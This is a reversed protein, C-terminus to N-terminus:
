YQEIIIISLTFAKLAEILSNLEDKISLLVAKTVVLPDLKARRLITAISSEFYDVLNSLEEARKKNITSFEIITKNAEWIDLM